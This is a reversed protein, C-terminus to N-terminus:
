KVVIKHSCTHPIYVHLQTYMYLNYYKHGCGSFSEWKREKEKEKRMEKEM